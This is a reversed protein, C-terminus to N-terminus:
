PKKPAPKAECAHRWLDEDSTDKEIATFKRDKPAPVAGALIVGKASPGDYLDSNGLLITRAKCRVTAETVVSRYRVQYLNDGQPKAYDLMYRLTVRDGSRKVSAADVSLRVSDNGRLETWNAGAAADLSALAAPLLMLAAIKMACSLDLSM